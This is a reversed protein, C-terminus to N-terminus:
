LNLRLKTMQLRKLPYIMRKFNPGDVLVRKGDAIDAIVVSKGYDEGFNVYAVRGCQM